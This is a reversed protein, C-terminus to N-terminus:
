IIPPLAGPPGQPQAIFQPIFQQPPDASPQPNAVTTNQAIVGMAPQQGTLGSLQTQAAVLQQSMVMLEGNLRTNEVRLRENEAAYNTSLSTNSATELFAKARARFELGGMGLQPLASDPFAALQEVTFVKIANLEAVRATDLAPWASLPTGTIDSGAVGSGRYHEIQRVFREYNHSRKNAMMAEPIFKRELELVPSSDRSGPAFVQVFLVEDFIPRGFKESLVANPVAKTEFQLTEGQEGRYLTDTM